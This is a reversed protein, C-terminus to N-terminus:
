VPAPQYVITTHGDHGHIVRVAEISQWLVMSRHEGVIWKLAVTGDSFEIGEAVTGVGSVGSIDEDRELVFMRM